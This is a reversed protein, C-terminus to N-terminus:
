LFWSLNAHKKQKCSCWRGYKKQEIYLLVIILSQKTIDLISPPLPPPYWAELQIERNFWGDLLTKKLWDRWTFSRTYHSMAQVVMKKPLLFSVLVRLDRVEAMQSLMLVKWEISTFVERSITQSLLVAACVVFIVIFTM